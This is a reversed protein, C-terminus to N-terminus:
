RERKLLRGALAPSIGMEAAIQRVTMNGHRHAAKIATIREADAQRHNATATGYKAAATRLWAAYDTATM